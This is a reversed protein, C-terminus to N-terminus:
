DTTWSYGCNRCMWKKGIPILKFLFYKKEFYINESDCELCASKENETQSEQLDVLLDKALEVDEERVQLEVPRGGRLYAHEGKALFHINADDLISKAMALADANWVVMVTLLNTFKYDIREEKKSQPALQWVLPIKCDACEVFGDRYESGCQPCFM